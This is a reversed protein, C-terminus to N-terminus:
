YSYKGGSGSPSAAPASSPAMSAPASSPAMSEPSMSPAVSAAPSPTTAAGPGPSTCAVLTLALALGALPVVGRRLAAPRHM